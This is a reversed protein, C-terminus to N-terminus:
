EDIPESMLYSKKAKKGLLDWMCNPDCGIGIRATSFDERELIKDVAIPRAAILKQRSLRRLEWEGDQVVKDGDGLAAELIRIQRALESLEMVDLSVKQDPGPMNRDLTFHKEIITAGLAVAALSAHIGETHDSYGIRTKFVTRLTDIARLNASEYPAPYQSTCHLLTVNKIVLERLSSDSWCRWIEDKSKPEVDGQYSHALIALAFEIESLTSMGTSLILPKGTRGFRWLLPGNIIEGSSIKLMPMDLSCLFELSGLDFATSLFDINNSKAFGQLELYINQPLELRKLMELQSESANGEKQQYRAKELGKVVLKESNFTQFKVANAGAEAAAAILDFALDINGNHNIGAEAILYVDKLKNEKIYTM